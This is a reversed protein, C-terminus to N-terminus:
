SLGEVIHLDLLLLFYTYAYADCERALRLRAVRYLGTPDPPSITLYPTTEGSALDVRRVPSAPNWSHAFVARGDNSFGAVMDSRGIGPVVRAGGGDVSIVKHVDGVQAVASAGDSSLMLGIGVVGESSPIMEPAGGDLGLRYLGNTGGPERGSVVLHRGEPHFRAAMTQLGHLPIRREEGAGIPVMTLWDNGFSESLLVWREDPSFAHARAGDALRIAATGDTRRVYVCGRAGGGEGSESYLLNRGDRTLDSILTWDMWSLDREREDGPARVSVGAREMGQTFLMRGDAAVDLVTMNTPNEHVKRVAGMADVAHLARPRTGDRDATFWVASGDAAWALGRVTEWGESLTRAGGDLDVVVVNGGDSNRTPHDLFAFRRGDASVRLHSIFGTSEYRIKGTPYEIRMGYDLDVVVVLGGDPMWGADVVDTRLERATGGM